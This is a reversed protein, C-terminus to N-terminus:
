QDGLGVLQLQELLDPHHAQLVRVREDDAAGRGHEQGLPPVQGVRPEQLVGGEDAPRALQLHGRGPQQDQQGDRGLVEQLGGEGVGAVRRELRDPLVHDQGEPEGLDQGGEEDDHVLVHHGVRPQHEPHERRPVEEAEGGPDRVAGGEDRLLGQDPLVLEQGQHLRGDHGHGEQGQEREQDGGHLLVGDGEGGDGHRLVGDDGDVPGQVLPLEEERVDALRRDEGLHLGEVGGVAEDDEGGGHDGRLHGGLDVLEGDDIANTTEM